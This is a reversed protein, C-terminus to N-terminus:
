SCQIIIQIAKLILSSEMTGLVVVKMDNELTSPISIDSVDILISNEDEILSFNGGSYGQVIGIVQIDQNEYRTPDGTIQSVSLYPRINQILLVSIVSISVIIGLIAIIKSKKM